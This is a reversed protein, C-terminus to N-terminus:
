RVHYLAILGLGYAILVALSDWGIRGFTQDRRELLGLLYMCTVVLGIAVAVLASQDTEALIPGPRYSLDAVLLLAVELCNTGLINAVAMEHRGRRVAALTTSLEPLSTSAAVLTVGIFSAGLGTQTALADGTLVVLWGAALIVTAAISGYVYLKTMSLQSPADSSSMVVPSDDPPANTARWQPLYERNRVAWLTMLYGTALLVPTLGMGLWAIPEGLVAGTLAISLLLLLAVGQFLLVPQPTFYTLAGRVAIVDVLGLLAIQLAVGGFLNGVVLRANNMLAGSITTAIEPLSTGIGLLVMGLLAQDAGKRAGGVDVYEALRTGALWVAVAAAAFILLNSWLPLSAFGPIQM